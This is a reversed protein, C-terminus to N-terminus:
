RTKERENFFVKRGPAGFPKTNQTKETLRSDDIVLISGTISM